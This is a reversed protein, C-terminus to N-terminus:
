PTEPAWVSQPADRANGCRLVHGWLVIGVGKVGRAFAKMSPRSRFFGCRKRL